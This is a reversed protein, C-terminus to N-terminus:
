QEDVQSTVTHRFGTPVGCEPSIQDEYGLDTHDATSRCKEETGAKLAGGVPPSKCDLSLEVAEIQSADARSIAAPATVLQVSTKHLFFPKLQRCCHELTHSRLALRQEYDAVKIISYKLEETLAQWLM